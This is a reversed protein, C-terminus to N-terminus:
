SESAFNDRSRFPTCTLRVKILDEPSVLETGRARNFLCYTDPLTMVGHAKDLRPVLFDALQLALQQHFLAGATRRTVPSAIGMSLFYSQSACGANLMACASALSKLLRVELEEPVDGADRQLSARMREAFALMERAKEMLASLDTFAEDVSQGLERQAAEHRRLIGAVGANSASFTGTGQLSTQQLAREGVAGSQTSQVLPALAVWARKALAAQLQETFETPAPGRCVRTLPTDRAHSARLKRGSRLRCCGRRLHLVQPRANASARLSASCLLASM